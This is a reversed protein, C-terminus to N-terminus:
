PEEGSIEQMPGQTPATKRQFQIRCRAEKGNERPPFAKVERYGPTPGDGMARFTRYTYGVKPGNKGLIRSAIEFTVDESVGPRYQWAAVSGAPCPVSACGKAIGVRFEGEHAAEALQKQFAAERAAEIQKKHDGTM